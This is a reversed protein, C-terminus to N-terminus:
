GSTPQELHVHHTADQCAYVFEGVLAARWTSLELVPMTHLTEYYEPAIHRLAPLRYMPIDPFDHHEVHYGEYGMYLDMLTGVPGEPTYFSVTPQRTGSM